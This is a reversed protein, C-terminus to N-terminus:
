LGGTSYRIKGTTKQEVPTQEGSTSESYGRVLVTITGSFSPTSETIPIGGIAFGCPAFDGTAGRATATADNSVINTYVGNKPDPAAAVVSGSSALLAEIEEASLSSKYSTGLGSGDIRVEIDWITLPDTGRWELKFNSFQVRYEGISTQLTSGTNKAQARDTCSAGPGGQIYVESPSLSIGLNVGLDEKKGCSSSGLVAVAALAAVGWKTM